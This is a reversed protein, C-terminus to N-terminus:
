LKKSKMQGAKENVSAALVTIARYNLNIATEKIMALSTERFSKGNCKGTLFLQVKLEVLYEIAM